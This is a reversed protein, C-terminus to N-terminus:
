STCTCTTDNMTMVFSIRALPRVFEDGHTQRILTLTRRLFKLLKGMLKNDALIDILIM